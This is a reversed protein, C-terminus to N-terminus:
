SNTNSVSACLSCIVRSSSYHLQNSMPLQNRHGNCMKFNSIKIWNWYNWCKILVHSKLLGPLQDTSYLHLLTRPIFFYLTIEIEINLFRNELSSKIVRLCHSPIFWANGILITPQLKRSIQNIIKPLSSLRQLVIM